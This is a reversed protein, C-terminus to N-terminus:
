SREPMSQSRRLLTSTMLARLAMPNVPKQLVLLGRQRLDERCEGNLVEGTVIFAPVRGGCHKRVRDIAETGLQGDALSYDSIVLDFTAGDDDAECAADPTTVTVVTCGWGTLLGYMAELALADDDIVLVRQRHFTGTAVPTQPAAMRERAAVGRRVAVSFCSGRGVTSKVAVKHGLLDCLRQVISLGLGLGAQRGDDPAGYRVFEGFINQMRAPPIGPGSDRVEIRVAGGERRCGILVGGRQTHRVANSVLNLLVRELLVPDSHIWEETGVVRLSLGKERATGAFTAEIREILRSVPLNIPTATLAGADLRSIDLLADFLENMTAVATEVRETLRERDAASMRARLQAVFLGVANLPQRLDHSAAALFRSKALNALELQHTREKVKSELTAYSDELRAAMSNFQEGLSELEDGTKIAVRTGLDGAEISSAGAQLATIPATMRRALVLGTLLAVGLLAGLLWTSRLISAYVPALAERAPLETVLLWGPPAIPARSAIVREGQLGAVPAPMESPGDTGDAAVPATALESRKLVLSIDPHAILRGLGDIVYAQGRQGVKIQWVVDWIFTLNVEAVVVGADRRPGALAITMFPESEDRFYVASHYIKHSSAAVFPTESSRDTNAGVIDRSLRSVKLQERGDGDLLAIETIAPVQRLLRLVDLRREDVDAVSWPLHTTWQMQGEIERLFQSIRAAGAEAQESQIRALLVVQERYSFWAGLVASCVLTMAALGALFLAYKRFLGRRIRPAAAQGPQDTGITM